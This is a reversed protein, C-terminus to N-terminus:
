FYISRKMVRSSSKHRQCMQIEVLGTTPTLLSLLQGILLTLIEELRTDKSAVRQTLTQFDAPDIPEPGTARSQDGTDRQDAM